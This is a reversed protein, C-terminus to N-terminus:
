PRPKVLGIIWEGLGDSFVKCDVVEFDDQDTTPFGTRGTGDGSLFLCPVRYKYLPELYYTRAFNTSAKLELGMGKKTGDELLLDPGKNQLARVKDGLVAVVEVKLWGEIGANPFRKMNRLSDKREKM